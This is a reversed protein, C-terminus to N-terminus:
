FFAVYGEAGVLTLLGVSVASVVRRDWSRDWDRYSLYGLTGVIGANVLGVLGGLVGPRLVYENLHRYILTGEKKARQLEAKGYETSQYREAGYGELGLLAFTAAATASLAKPNRRLAPDAYFARAAGAFLGLNVIGVLGGAVGPRLLFKTVTEITSEPSKKGGKRPSSGGRTPDQEFADDPLPRNASTTTQPHDKFGPSVINVKNSGDVVSSASPPETNLLGIDPQPDAGAPASAAAQAYSM